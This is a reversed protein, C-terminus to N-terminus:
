KRGIPPLVASIVQTGDSYGKLGNHDSKTKYETQFADSFKKILPQPAPTSM